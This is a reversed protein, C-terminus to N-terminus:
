YNKKVKIKTLSFVTTDRAHKQSSTFAGFSAHKLALVGDYMLVSYQWVHVVSPHLPAECYPGIAISTAM